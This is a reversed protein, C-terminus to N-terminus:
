QPAGQPGPLMGAQQAMAAMSQALQEKELKTRMLRPDFGTQTALWSNFKEGDIQMALFQPGFFTALLEMHRTHRLINDQAMARELAALPKIAIAQGDLRPMGREVAGAQKGLWVVRRVLPFLFEQLLNGYPGALRKAASVERIGAETASMPTKDTPGLDVIHFFRRIQGQLRELEIYGFDPGQPLKVPELGRSGAARPIIAGPEIIATDPNLVGDDEALWIGGLALDAHELLMQKLQNATRIDPMAMLAPGRGMIEGAVRSYSFAVFPCSGQGRWEEYDLGDDGAVVRFCWVEEGPPVGVRKREYGEVVEVEADPDSRIKDAWGQPLRARPYLTTVEGVKCKVPRFLAEIGGFPGVDLVAETLPICRFRLPEDADGAEVLMVGTGIAADQFAEFASTRFRSNNVVSVIQDALASLGKKAEEADRVKAAPGPALDFPKQEIPWIDDLMRSAWEQLADVATGDFLRDVQPRAQKTYSRQRLPLAFEYADDIDQAIERRKAEARQYRAKFRAIDDM